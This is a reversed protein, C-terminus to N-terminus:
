QVVVVKEAKLFPEGRGADMEVIGTILLPRRSDLMSKATRYVDPFLIVGLTGSLDELTLFLMMEGKVTRTRRSTQRVGAVTVRRGIKEVADLTSTAGTIKGAVLELPHAELSAGLIEMQATVKQQINWDEDSSDRWEFLSLQNQQWGGSHLRHLISPIKGM